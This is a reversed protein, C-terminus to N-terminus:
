QEGMIACTRKSSCASRGGGGSSAGSVQHSYTHTQRLCAIRSPVFRLSGDTQRNMMGPGLLLDALMEAFRQRHLWLWCGSVRGLCGLWVRLLEAPSNCVRICLLRNNQMSAEESVSCLVREWLLHNGAYGLNLVVLHTARVRKSNNNM